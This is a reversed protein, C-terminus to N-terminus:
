WELLYFYQKELKSLFHHSSLGTKWGLARTTLGISNIDHARIWALYNKGSGQGRCQSQLVEIEEQNFCYKRRVIVSAGTYPRFYVM